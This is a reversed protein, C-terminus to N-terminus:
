KCSDTLECQGLVRQAKPNAYAGKKPVDDRKDGPGPVHTVRDWYDSNESRAKFNKKAVAADFSADPRPGIPKQASLDSMKCDDPIPKGAQQTAVCWDHNQLAQTVQGRGGKLGTGNLNLPQMAGLRGGSAPAKALGSPEVKQLTPLDAAKAEHLNLETVQKLSNKDKAKIEEEVKKRVATSVSPTSPLDAIQKPATIDLPKSTPVDFIIPKTAAKTENPAIQPSPQTAPQTKQPQPPQPQVERPVIVPVPTEPVPLPMKEPPPEPLPEPLRWLEVVVPPPEDYTQEINWVDANASILVWFLLVHLVLVLGTSAVLRTRYDLRYRRQGIYIDLVQDGNLM